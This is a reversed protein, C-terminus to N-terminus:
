SASLAKVAPNDPNVKKLRELAKRLEDADGLDKLAVSLNQLALEHDPDLALAKRYEEVARKPDAPQRLYFTLGLDNRLGPDRKNITLAKAYYEGAKVFERQKFYIQGINANAEFSEPELELAKAYFGLAEDFRQI